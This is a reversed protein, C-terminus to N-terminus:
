GYQVIHEAAEEIIKRTNTIKRKRNKQKSREEQRKLDHIAEYLQKLLEIRTMM